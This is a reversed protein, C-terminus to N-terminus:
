RRRRSNSLPPTAAWRAMWIPARRRSSACMSMLAAGAEAAGESYLLHRGFAPLLAREQWGRGAVLDRDALVHQLHHGPYTEHSVLWLARALDVPGTASIAVRSRFGGEYIARGEVGQLAVAELEVRESDPLSLQDRGHRRCVELAARLVSPLHQSAVSHAKRFRAYREHLPGSGPLAADLADRASLVAPLHSASGPPPIAAVLDAAASGFADRAEELFSMPEGSLRRAAVLLADLQARLYGVRIAADGDADVQAVRGRIGELETRIDAVPRRPGPRWDAPGLWAEVLSPQHQALQLACRVYAEGLRDLAEPEEQQAVPERCATGLAAAALTAMASRRSMRPLAIMEFHLRQVHDM